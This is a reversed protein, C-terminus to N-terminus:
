PMNIMKLVVLAIKSCAFYIINSTHCSCLFIDIKEKDSILIYVHNETRITDKSINLFM